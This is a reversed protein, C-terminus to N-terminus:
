ERGSINKSLPFFNVTLQYVRDIQPEETSISMIRKRFERIEQTIRNFNKHSIGVTTGTIDRDSQPTNELAELGLKAWEKHLRRIALTVDEHIPGSSITPQSQSYDGDKKRQLLGLKLLLKISRRAERPKIPPHLASGLKMYDSEWKMFVALERIASHYWTHYFEYQDRSLFFVNIRKGIGQLKELYVQKEQSTKAQNYFVLYEFYDSESKSLQLANSFKQITSKTLNRKSDIVLKLLVPNTISGRQAFLRYSFIPKKKEEQYYDKLYQRYDRYEFVVKM